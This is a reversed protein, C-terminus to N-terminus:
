PDPALCTPVHSSCRHKWILFRPSAARSATGVRDIQRSKLMRQDQEDKEKPTLERITTIWPGTGEAQSYKKEPEHSPLGFAARRVGPVACEFGKAIYKSIRAVSAPSWYMTDVYFASRRVAEVFSPLAEVVLTPTAAKADIRALVQPM